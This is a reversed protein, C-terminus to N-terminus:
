KKRKAYDARFERWYEQNIDVWNFKDAIEQIMAREKANFLLEPNIILKEFQKLAVKKDTELKKRRWRVVKKIQEDTLQRASDVQSEKLEREWARNQAKTKKQKEAITTLRAIRKDRIKAVDKLLEQLEAEWLRRKLNKEEKSLKRSKAM